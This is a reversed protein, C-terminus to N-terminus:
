LREYGSLLDMANRGLEYTTDWEDRYTVTTDGMRESSVDESRERREWMRVVERLAAEEVDLPLTRNAEGPLLYGGVYRVKYHERDEEGPMPHQILAGRTNVDWEWGDRRWIAGQVADEIKWDTIAIGDELIYEISVVPTRSLYLYTRGRGPLWEDVTERKFERGCYAVIRSSVADILATLRTDDGAGAIDLETKVTALQVLKTEAAAVVVSLSM